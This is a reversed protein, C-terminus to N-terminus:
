FAPALGFLLATVLSAVLAFMVVRVDIALTIWDAGDPKGLTASFLDIGWQALILGALGGALALMVSETMLQRVLRLRGAGIAARLAMEHKRAGIHAALLGALNACALLLVLAAAALVFLAM